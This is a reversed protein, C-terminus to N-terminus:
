GQFQAAVRSFRDEPNGGPRVFVPRFMRLLLCSDQFKPYLYFRFQVIRTTLVLAIILKCFGKNECLSVDPKKMVRRLKYRHCKCLLAPPTGVEYKTGYVAELAGAMKNAVCDQLLTLGIFYM